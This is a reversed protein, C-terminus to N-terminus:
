GTLMAASLRQPSLAPFAAAFRRGDLSLDAPRPEDGAISLRSVPEINPREIGLLRAAGAILDFRSLREPGAVHIVGCEGTTALAALAAAADAVWLPTRFEDTFLRLPAGHRLAELQAAFTTPRPTRPLGFLLPVRVVLAAGHELAAREGELKSRGYRSLPRPTASEDYPAGLGDFVMDTSVYVLRAGLAAAASAIVRTAEVNVRAAGAPDRFCDAVATMAGAHIVHTPRIRDIATRLATGDALDVSLPECPLTAGAWSRALGGVRSAGSAALRAVLHGGLQGTAGTVLWVCDPM